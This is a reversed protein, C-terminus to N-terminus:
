LFYVLIFLLLWVVDVFHWYWAVAEFGFHHDPKFHGKACRFWITILMITGITVHFGHFGTLMFFTTGYIGTTLKLNLEHYAHAYEDAQLFLFLAGLLVTAGLWILLSRRHDARLAHHALTLTVGSTLLIATNWAPLGTANMPTFKEGTPGSTPWTASFDPWLLKHDLDGLWPVALNRAYFLAGFFAAFFMVESFIFWSMSWRFAVDVQRNYQGSESEGIVDSFWGVLMVLLLAFGALVVWRGSSAGNMWSAAGLALFLLAFSGWIMRKSPDPVFYKASQALM